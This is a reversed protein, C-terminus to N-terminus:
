IENGERRESPQRSKPSPMLAAAEHGSETRRDEVPTVNEPRDRRNRRLHKYNWQSRYMRHKKWGTKLKGDRRCPKRTPLAMSNQRNERTNEPISFPEIFSETPESHVYQKEAM